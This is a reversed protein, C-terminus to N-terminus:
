PGVNDFMHALEFCTSRVYKVPFNPDLIHLFTAGIIDKIAQLKQVADEETCNCVISVVDALFIPIVVNGHQEPALLRM